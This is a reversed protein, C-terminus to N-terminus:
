AEENKEAPSLNEMLARMGCLDEWAKAKDPLNRLLYAPHYTVRVPIEHDGDRYALRKGRLSALSGDQGLVASVAARGLLVILRPEILAIQRKLFPFCAAMEANEPTRNGPPRCKVANAIYVDEGRKLGIAALMADLLRGAQGVFPEGRADEEAGPGEGIFLWAANEDGVGPVAQRRRACLGCARCDGIAQRLEEWGMGSADVTRGGEEPAARAPNADPPPAKVNRSAAATETKGREKRAVSPTQRLAWVPSFGMEDLLARRSLSM